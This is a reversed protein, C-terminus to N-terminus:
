VPGTDSMTVDASCRGTIPAGADGPGDGLEADDHEQRRVHHQEGREEGGVEQQPRVVLRPDGSPTSSSTGRANTKVSTSTADDNVSAADSRAPSRGPPWRAM